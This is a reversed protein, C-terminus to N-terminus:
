NTSVEDKFRQIHTVSKFGPEIEFSSNIDLAHLPLGSKRLKQIDALHEMGIGGSLFFPVSSTYQALLTWDFSVGNGGREKGKTDFLFYDVVSEYATVVHFDFKNDIGFVKIIAIKSQGDYMDNRKAMQDLSSRLASIYSVTEDGHLQIAQLGYRAIKSLVNAISANVFVGTKQVSEPIKPLCGTFHRKSKEYFIFGMYDPQLAAVEMMNESYKMGCVKIKM